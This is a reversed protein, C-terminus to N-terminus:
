NFKYLNLGVEDCFARDVSGEIAEILFEGTASIFAESLHGGQSKYTKDAVNIHIHLYIEGNMTSINGLLSTIEYDGELVVSHYQKTLTEFLGIQVRNVAGIGKVWGLTIGQEQCFKKLVSVVEETKDMRVIYKHGFKKFEM